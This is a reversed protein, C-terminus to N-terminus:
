NFRLFLIMCVLLLLDKKEIKYFRVYFPLSLIVPILFVIVYIFSTPIKILSNIVEFIYWPNYVGLRTLLTLVGFIIFPVGIIKPWWFYLKSGFIELEAKKDKGNEKLKSKSQLHNERNDNIPTMGKVGEWM